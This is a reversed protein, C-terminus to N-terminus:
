GAGTHCSGHDAACLAPPEEGHQEHERLAGERQPVPLAPGAGFGWSNELRQQSVGPRMAYWGWARPPPSLPKVKPACRVPPPAGTSGSRLTDRPLPQPCLAPGSDPHHRACLDRARAAAVM